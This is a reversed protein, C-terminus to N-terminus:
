DPGWSRWSTTGLVFDKLSACLEADRLDGMCCAGGCDFQGNMDAWAQLAIVRAPTDSRRWSPPNSWDLAEWEATYTAAAVDMMAELDEEPNEVDTEPLDDAQLDSAKYHGFGGDVLAVTYAPSRDSAEITEGDDEWSSNWVGSVVGVGDPTDVIDGESYRNALAELIGRKERQSADVEGLAEFLPTLDTM